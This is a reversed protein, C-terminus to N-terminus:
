IKESARNIVATMIPMMREMELPSGDEKGFTLKVSVMLPLGRLGRLPKNEDRNWGWDQRWSQGDYFSFSVATLGEVLLDKKGDSRRWLAWTQNAARILEYGMEQLRDNSTDMLRRTFRLRSGPRGENPPAVFMSEDIDSSVFASRLDKAMVTLAFSLDAEPRASRVLSQFRLTGARLSEFGVMSVLVLLLITFLVEILTFGHNNLSLKM